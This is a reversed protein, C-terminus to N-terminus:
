PLRLNMEIAERIRHIAKTSRNAVGLARWNMNRLIARVEKSPAYEGVALPSALYEALCKETDEYPPEGVGYVLWTEEIPIRKRLAAVILATADKGPRFRAREARNITAPSLGSARAFDAQRPYGAAERARALRAGFGEDTTDSQTARM